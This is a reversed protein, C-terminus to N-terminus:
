TTCKATELLMRVEHWLHEGHKVFPTDALVAYKCKKSNRCALFTLLPHALTRPLQFAGIARASASPLASAVSSSSPWSQTRRPTRTRISRRKRYPVHRMEIRIGRVCPTGPNALSPGGLAGAPVKGPVCCLGVPRGSQSRQWVRQPARGRRRGPPPLEARTQEPERAACPARAHAFPHWAAPFRARSCALLQQSRRSRALHEQALPFRIQPRCLLTLVAEDLFFVSDRWSPLIFRVATAM